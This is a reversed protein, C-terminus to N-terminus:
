CEPKLSVNKSRIQHFTYNELNDIKIDACLSITVLSRSKLFHSRFAYSPNALVQISTTAKQPIMDFSQM